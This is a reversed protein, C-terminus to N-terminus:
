PGEALFPHVAALALGAVLTAAVNLWAASAGRSPRRWWVVAALVVLALQVGTAATEVAVWPRSPGRSAVVAGLALGPALLVAALVSAQRTLRELGALSPGDGPRDAAPAHEKMRRYAALYGFALLGAALVAATGLIALGVHGALMADKRADAAAPGAERALGPVSAAALLAVAVWFGGGHSAVRSTRELLLYLFGTAMALFSLAQSGTHFPSRGAAVGLAVLGALHLAVAAAGGARAWSPPAERRRRAELYAVACAAYAAPVLLLLDTALGTM